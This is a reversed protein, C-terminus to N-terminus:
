LCNLYMKFYILLRGCLVVISNQLVPNRIACFGSTGEASLQLQLAPLSVPSGYWWVVM